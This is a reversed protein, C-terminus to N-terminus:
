VLVGASRELPNRRLSNAALLIGVPLWFTIVYVSPRLLIEHYNAIAAVAAFVLLATGLRVIPETRLKIGKALLVVILGLLTLAGVIGYEYFFQLYLNHAQKFCRETTDICINFAAGAGAGTLWFADFRNLWEMWIVDRLSFGITREVHLQTSFAICAVGIGGIVLFSALLSKRGGFLILLVALAAILALWVGRSFTYIVYILLISGALAFLITMSASMQRRLFLYVLCILAVSYYLASVIPNNFDALGQWGLKYIRFARYGLNEHSIFNMILSAAAFLVAVVVFTNIVSEFYQEKHVLMAIAILYFSIQLLVKFWKIGYEASGPNLYGSGLVWVFMVAIFLTGIDRPILKYAQVLCLSLLVPLFLLLNVLTAYRSGDAILCLGALQTFMGLAVWLCLYNSLRSEVM